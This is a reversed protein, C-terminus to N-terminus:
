RDSFSFYTASCISGCGTLLCFMDVKSYHEFMINRLVYACPTRGYATINGMDPTVSINDLQSVHNSTATSLGGHVHGAFNCLVFSFSFFLDTSYSIMSFLGARFFELCWCLNRNKSVVLM